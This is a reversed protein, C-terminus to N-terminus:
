SQTKTHCAVYVEVFHKPLITTISVCAGIDSEYWKGATILVIDVGWNNQCRLEESRQDQRSNRQRKTGEWGGYWRQPYTSLVAM